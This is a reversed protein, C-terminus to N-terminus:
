SPLTLEENEPCHSLHAVIQDLGDRPYHRDRQAM